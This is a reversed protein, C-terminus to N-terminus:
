AKVVATDAWKDHFGRHGPQDTIYTILAALMLLVQALGMIVGLIPVWTLLVPAYFPLKRKVAGAPDVSRGDTYVARINVLRKGLSQGGNGETLAWYGLGIALNVLSGVVAFGIGMGGGLDGMMASMGGAALGVAALIFFVIAGAILLIVGDIVDAGIRTGVDAPEGM